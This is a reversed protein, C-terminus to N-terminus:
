GWALRARVAAVAKRVVDGGQLRLLEGLTRVGRRDLVELLRVLIEATVLADGLSTHRGVVALDLRRAIEELNYGDWDPFLSYTLLLTDIVAGGGLDPYGLPRLRPNLFALDFSAVHAVPVSEGVFEVFRPLVDDLTPQGAVMADTIGHVRTSAAPIRRGPRVLTVYHDERVVKGARVRVGGISIIEDGGAPELGTTELDFVV